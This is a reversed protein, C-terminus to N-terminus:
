MTDCRMVACRPPLRCRNVDALSDSRQSVIGFDDRLRKNEEELETLRQWDRVLVLM